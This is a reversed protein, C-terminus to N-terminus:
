AAISPFRARNGMLTKLLAYLMASAAAGCVASFLNVRYAVNGIPVILTFIKGLLCFLPFGPPHPVGLLVVATVNEGAGSTFITPCLTRGYVFLVSVLILTVAIWDTVDFPIRPPLPEPPVVRKVEEPKESKKRKAAKGM